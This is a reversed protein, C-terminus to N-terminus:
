FMNTTTISTLRCVTSDALNSLRDPQQTPLILRCAALDALSSLRCVTSDAPDQQVPSDASQQTPLTRSFQHTPLNSLRCVALEFSNASGQQLMLRCAASDAAQQTPLTRSFQHTPWAASDASRWFCLVTKVEHPFNPLVEGPSMLHPPPRPTWGGYHLHYWSPTNATYPVVWIACPVSEWSTAVLSGIFVSVLFLGTSLGIINSDLFEPMSILDDLGLGRLTENRHSDALFQEAHM